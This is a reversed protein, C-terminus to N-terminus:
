VAIVSSFPSNVMLTGKRTFGEESVDGGWAITYGQEIADAFAKQLEAESASTMLCDAVKSCTSVGM